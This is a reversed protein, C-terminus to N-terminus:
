AARVIYMMAVNDVTVNGEGVHINNEAISHLVSPDRWTRGKKVKQTNYEMDCCIGPLSSGQDSGIERDKDMGRGNDWGKITMARLDLLYGSPYIEALLKFKAKNFAQGRSELFGPPPVPLPWPFPIGVPIGAMSALYVARSTALTTPSNLNPDSSIPALSGGYSVWRGSVYKLTTKDEVVEATDGEEVFLKVLEDVTLVEHHMELQPIGGKTFGDGIYTREATTDIIVDGAQYITLVRVERAHEYTEM